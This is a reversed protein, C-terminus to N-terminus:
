PWLSKIYKSTNDPKFKIISTYMTVKRRDGATNSWKVESKIEVIEAEYEPYYLYAYSNKVLEPLLFSILLCITNIWLYTFIRYTISTEKKSRKHLFLYGLVIGVVLPLILYLM